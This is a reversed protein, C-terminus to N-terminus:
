VIISISVSVSVEARSIKITGSQMPDRKDFADSFFHFLVNFNIGNFLRRYRWPPRYWLFISLVDIQGSLITVLPRNKLFNLEPM